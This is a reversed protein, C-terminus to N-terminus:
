RLYHNQLVALSEAVVLNLSRDFGDGSLMQELQSKVDLPRVSALPILLCLRLARRVLIHNGKDGLEDVEDLRNLVHNAYHTLPSLVMENALMRYPQLAATLTPKKKFSFFPHRVGDRELAAVPIVGGLRYIRAMELQSDFLHRVVKERFTPEVTAGACLCRYLLWLLKTRRAMAPYTMVQSMVSRAMLFELVEEPAEQQAVVFEIVSLWNDDDFHKRVYEMEQRRSILARAVFYEQFSTHSFAYTDASIRELIGHHCEIENLVGDAQQKELGFRETYEGVILKLADSPFRLRVGDTFYHHAVHEFIREKREDTLQSYASDRRFRRTTDWDRLLTDICRRYLETKRKPLALDHRFQICLLSLLLPTETLASVGRDAKLMRILDSGKESDDKFWAKIIKNVAPNSLRAIEVEHFNELGGEYDAARCTLVIKSLPFRKEFEIIRDLVAKRIPVPVEDLSDLLLVGLGKDFTRQLYDKAFDTTKDCLPKAAYDFLSNETKALAPLAIYVPLLSKSLKTNVFIEKTSYALALHKLLTTKGSGPGGLVIIRNHKEVFAEADISLKEPKKEQHTVEAPGSEERGCVTEPRFLRRGISTSLRAPSYIDRLALPQAMGLIKVYKTEESVSLFQANRFKRFLDLSEVGHNLTHFVSSVSQKIPEDFWSFVPLGGESKGSSM